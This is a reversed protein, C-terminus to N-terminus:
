TARGGVPTLRPDDRIKFIPGRAENLPELANQLQEANHVMTRFKYMRFQRRNYGYRLQSFFVPGPSSAKVAVACAALLPFLLVLGCVAGAVDIARKVVLRHDDAVLQLRVGPIDDEEDYARRALSLSFLDPFYKAEVGVRECANIALQISEYCSKVPLAILVQDIAQTTLLSELGELGGILRSSIEPPVDRGATSDVFGILEGASQPRSQLSHFLELARPGSGVIVARKVNVGRAEIRHALYAIVGRGLLEAVVAASWFYVVVRPGFTARPSFLMFLAIAGTALTCALVVRPVWAAAPRRTAAGHLGCLAFCAHWVAVLLVGSALNRVTIRVALFEDLGGPMRGINVVAFTVLMVGLVCAGDFLQNTRDIAHRAARNMCTAGDPVREASGRVM